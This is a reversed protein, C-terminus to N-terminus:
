IIVIIEPVVLEKTVLILMLICSADPWDVVALFMHSSIISYMVQLNDIIKWKSNQFRLDCFVVGLFHSLEVHAIDNSGAIIFSVLHKNILIMEQCLIHLSLDSSHM